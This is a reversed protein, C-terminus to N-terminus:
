PNSRILDLAEARAEPKDRLAGRVASTVMEQGYQHVGRMEMCLHRARLVVIVGKAHVHEELADAVQMTIREQNQLRRAYVHVIRALKSVGVIRGNPLYGVDATGMFPLLHHECLSWFPIARLMVMEDYGEGEFFTLVQRPDADYGSTLDAWARAARDPTAALGDRGVGQGEAALLLRRYADAVYGAPVPLRRDGVWEPDMADTPRLCLETDADPADYNDPPVNTSVPCGPACEM